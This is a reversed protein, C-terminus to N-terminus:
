VAMMGEILHPLPQFLAAHQGQKLRPECPGREMSVPQPVDEIRQQRGVEVLHQARKSQFCELDVGDWGGPEMLVRRGHREISRILVLWLSGSRGPWGVPVAFISAVVEFLPEQTQPHTAIAPQGESDAHPIAV